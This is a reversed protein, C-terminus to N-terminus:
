LGGAGLGHHIHEFHESKLADVRPIAIQKGAPQDQGGRYSPSM